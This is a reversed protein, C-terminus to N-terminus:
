RRSASKRRDVSDGEPGAGEGRRDVGHAAVAHREDIRRDAARGSRRVADSHVHGSASPDGRTRIVAGLDDNLADDLNVMLENVVTKPNIWEALSDLIGRMMNTKIKQIDETYDAISTALSQTASRIATSCRSSSGTRRRTLSSRTTRAWRASTAFSRSGMATRIPRSTGSARIERWRWGPDVHLARSQAAPGGDHVRQHGAVARVRPVARAFLGDCDDSRDAGRARPRRHRSDRWTRAYRDLRMEEPPVGAVKIMPKDIEFQVIVEDFTPPPPPPPAMPLPPPPAGAMPGPAARRRIPSAGCPRRRHGAWRPRDLHLRVRHRPVPPLRRRASLQRGLRRGSPPPMPAAAAADRESGAQGGEGIERESEGAAASAGSGCHDAYVAESGDGQERRTWWKM